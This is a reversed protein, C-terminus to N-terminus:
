DLRGIRRKARQGAHIATLGIVIQRLQTNADDTDAAHTGPGDFSQRTGTDTMDRHYVM